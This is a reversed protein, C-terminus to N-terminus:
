ADSSCKLNDATVKVSPDWRFYKQSAAEYMPDNAYDSKIIM